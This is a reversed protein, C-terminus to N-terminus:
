VHKSNGAAKEFEPLAKWFVGRDKVRQLSTPSRNWLWAEWVMGLSCLTETSTKWWGVTEVPSRCVTQLLCLLVLWYCQGAWILCAPYVKLKESNRIEWRHSSSFLTCKVRSDFSSLLCKIRVYRVYGRQVRKIYMIKREVEGDHAYISAVDMEKIHLASATLKILCAKEM